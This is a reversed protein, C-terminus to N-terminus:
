SYRTVEGVAKGDQNSAAYAGNGLDVNIWTGNRYGAEVFRRAEAIADKETTSELTIHGPVDNHNHGFSATFTHQTM